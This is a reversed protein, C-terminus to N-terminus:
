KTTNDTSTDNPQTEDTVQDKATDVVNHAIEEIKDVAIEAKEKVAEVLNDISEAAQPIFEKVKEGAQEAFEEVKEVIPAATEKAKTIADDAFNEVQEVILIGDGISPHAIHIGFILVTNRIIHSRTYEIHFQRGFELLLDTNKFSM